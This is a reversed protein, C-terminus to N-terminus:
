EQEAEKGLSKSFMWEYLHPNSYAHVWAGIHGEDPYETYGPSGGAVRLARVMTRSYKPSVVEDKAGHFVWIPMDKIFFARTADGGGCVPVAAAFRNPHRQILDFTGFGGMSIGTVYLRKDDISYRDQLKDLLEVTLRMSPTPEQKMPMSFSSTDRIAGLPAWSEDSPVQPAVVFAPYQERMRPEAFHTVGWKLQSFNDSGREGAGHLFLVLPYQRSSDYDAPKLLRYQLENGLSDTYTEAVFDTVQGTATFPLLILAAVISYKLADM